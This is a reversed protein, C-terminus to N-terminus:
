GYTLEPVVQALTAVGEVQIGQLKLTAAAARVTAGTTYIDDLLLVRPFWLREGPTFAGALNEQREPACLHCQPLTPRVRVLGQPQLGLGTVRCFYGALLEAQNFGRQRLRSPHLPIPVVVLPGRLPRLQQWAQGMALGLPAAWERRGEYKFTAIMARLAGGYVGWSYVPLPPHWLRLPDRLRCTRLQDKLEGTELPQGRPIGTVKPDKQTNM